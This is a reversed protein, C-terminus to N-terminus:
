TFSLTGLKSKEGEALVYLGTPVGLLEITVSIFIGGAATVIDEVVGAVGAQSIQDTRPPLALGEIFPERELFYETLADEIDDQTQTVDDVVLGNVEVDFAIRTIPLTNVFANAPRRSALGNDDFEISDAVADLQAPTPIGDVETASEVYVNVQGPDGTYPYINAIGAVEEGWQEYDAYAGGQPRKQFRDLVRIRYADETEADAATTVTGTVTANPAVDPIPSVFSLVEGNVRNGITGLGGGGTQDNAAQVEVTKTAADLAVAGTSLYVVGSPSHLFQTGAPLTGGQTLVAIDVEIVAATAPNPDGLGVLRGWETLPSVTKGNIEVTEFTATSVFMQLFIFGGYKYNTVLVAALVASLVRLFAKPLIPITQGLSAELNAIINARLEATTPVNLSM